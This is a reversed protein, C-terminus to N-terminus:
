LDSWTKQVDIQAGSEPTQPRSHLALAHPEPQLPQAQRLLPLDDNVSCHITNIHGSDCNYAASSLHLVPWRCAM